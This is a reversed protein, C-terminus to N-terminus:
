VGVAFLVLLVVLMVAVTALAFLARGTLLPEPRKSLRMRDRRLVVPFVGMFVTRRPRDKDDDM